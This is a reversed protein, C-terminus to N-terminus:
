CNKDRDWCQRYVIRSRMLLLSIAIDKTISDKHNDVSVCSNRKGRKWKKKRKEVWMECNVNKM